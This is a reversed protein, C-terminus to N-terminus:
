RRAPEKQAEIWRDVERWHEYLWDIRAADDEPVEDSPVRFFRIRITRDLLAGGAWDNM